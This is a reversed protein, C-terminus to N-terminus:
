VLPSNVEGLSGRQFTQPRRREIAARSIEIVELAEGPTMCGACVLDQPRITNWVFNLGVLPTIRGAAMPKITLVPKHADWINQHVTEVEMQMLFGLCNYIQICGEIDYRQETAYTLVEPMHASLGPIMGRERIMRLYDPLREITHDRKNLLEEVTCNFPWCFTVGNRRDEDFAREAARLADPTGATDFHPTNIIYMKRGTKDEAEHVADYVLPSIGGLIVNVGADLYVSLMHAANTRDLRNYDKIGQDAAATKHSYGNIWNTGVVLRSVEIGGLSTTPFGERQVSQQPINTKARMTENM